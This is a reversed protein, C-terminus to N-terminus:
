SARRWVLPMVGLAVCAAAAYFVPYGLGDAVLAALYGLAMSLAADLCQFLTFDVGAQKPDSWVMFQAYLAVFGISMVTGGGFLAAGILVPDPLGISARVLFVCLILANLGLAGVLVSRTGYRQVLWGGILAGSLGMVISGAGNLAGIAELSFGQDVFFPGTIFLASKQAIVFLATLWLANRIDARALTSKLSPEHAREAVPRSRRMTLRLFPLCLLAVLLAMVWVSPGWGMRAALVLFLGGGIASGVYAGGVQAANGMGYNGKSLEQVAFGDVAIDVTATAFAVVMLCSLVPWLPDLPVCGAAILGVVALAGGILVVLGSRDRGQRPLRFREIWPSWFVKLAWPLIILSVMGIQDLPMGKSRLYAGLGAWTLGGIVSQAVYVAGIGFVIRWASVERM